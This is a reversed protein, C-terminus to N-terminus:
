VTHLVCMGDVKVALIWFGWITKTAIIYVSNEYYVFLYTTILKNSVSSLFYLSYELLLFKTDRKFREARAWKDVIVISNFISM